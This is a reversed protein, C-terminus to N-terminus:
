HKAISMEPLTYLSLTANSKLGTVWPKTAFYYEVWIIPIYYAQDMLMQEAQQCLKIREAVQTIPLTNAQTLVTNLQENKAKVYSLMFSSTGLGLGAVLVSPDNYLTGLSRRFMQSVGDDAQEGQAFPSITLTIGLTDKWMQQVAEAVQVYETTNTPVRVSIPPLNKGTKYSSAALAKKAEDPDFYPKPHAFGDLNPSTLGFAPNASGKFVAKVITAMDTAKLLARRVNIDDVPKRTVDFNFFVTGGQPIPLLEKAHSGAKMQAALIDSPQVVDVENNDYMISQTNVDQIYRYNVKTITPKRGWWHENPEWNLEGSAKNWNALKYPGCCVPHQDWSDSSLANEKKVVGAVNISIAKIFPTFPQTLTVELTADDIAVLGKMDKSKGAVVDDYGVIPTTVFSALGSKTEPYTMYEWSFKLDAATVQSGDSFKALPDMKLTYKLGDSSVSWDTCIGPVLKGQDDEYFPPLFTNETMMSLPGGENSPRITAPLAWSVLRLTQDDSLEASMAIQPTALAVWELGTLGITAIPLAGLLQRRSIQGVM